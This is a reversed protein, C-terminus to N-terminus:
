CRISAPHSAPSHRPQREGLGAIVRLACPVPKLGEVCGMPLARPASGRGLRKEEVALACRVRATGPLARARSSGAAGHEDPDGRAEAL